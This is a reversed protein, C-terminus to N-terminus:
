AYFQFSKIYDEFTYPTNISAIGSEIPAAMGTIPTIPQIVPTDGGGTSSLKNGYADIEGSMRASMYDDYSLNTKGAPVVKENYFDRNNFPGMGSLNDLISGLFPVGTALGIVGSAISNPSFLNVKASDDFGFTPRDIFNEVERIRAERNINRQNQNQERTGRDDAPGPNGRTDGRGAGGPDARGGSTGESSRAADDGRYGPRKGDKRPKVLQPINEYTIGKDIM